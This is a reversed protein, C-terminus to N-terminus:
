SCIVRSLRLHKPVPYPHSFPSEKKGVQNTKPKNNKLNVKSLFIPFFLKLHRHRGALKFAAAALEFSHSKTWLSFWVLLSLVSM